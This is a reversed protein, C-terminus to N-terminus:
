RPAADGARLGGLPQGSGKMVLDGALLKVRYVAHNTELDGSNEDVLKAGHELM